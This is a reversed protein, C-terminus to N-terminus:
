GKSLILWLGIIIATVILAVIVILTIIGAWPRRSQGAIAWEEELDSEDDAVPIFQTISLDMDGNPRHPEHEPELDTASELETAAEDMSIEPSSESESETKRTIPVQVPPEIEMDGPPGVIGLSTLVRFMDYASQYRDSPLKALAKLIVRELGPPIGPVLSGPSPPPDKLIKLQLNLINDDKFPVRGTLMEYLVVGASYLDSRIDARGRLQEPAMYDPTGPTVTAKQQRVAEGLVAIGFDFLYARGETTCLLNGPKVDRHVVGKNHAYALASLLQYAYLLSEQPTLKGREAIISDLTRGSIFQMVLFLLGGDNGFDFIKVINPHDLQASTEAERMFLKVFASDESFQKPLVKIAVPKHLFAHEGRYVVSMGGSSLREIVKYKGAIIRQTEKM